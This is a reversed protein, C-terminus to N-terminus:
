SPEDVGAYGLPALLCAPLRGARRGGGAVLDVPLVIRLHDGHVPEGGRDSGQRSVSDALLLESWWCPGRDGPPLQGARVTGLGSLLRRGAAGRGVPEGGRGLLHAARDLAPAPAAGHDVPAAARRPGRHRRGHASVTGGPR